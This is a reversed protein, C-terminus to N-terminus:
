RGYWDDVHIIARAAASPDVAEQIYWYYAAGIYYHGPKGPVEVRSLDRGAAKLGPPLYDSSVSCARALAMRTVVIKEAHSRGGETNLRDGKEPDTLEFAADSRCPLRNYQLLDRASPGMAAKSSGWALRTSDRWVDEPTKMFTMALYYVGGVLVLVVALILIWELAGIGKHKM